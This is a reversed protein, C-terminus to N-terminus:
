HVGKGGTIELIENSFDLNDVNFVNKVGLSKLYSRQQKSKATAYIEAGVMKAYHVAALGLGNSANHILVKEGKQLNAKDRLCYIASLYSTILHSENNKLGTPCKEALNENVTTYSKFAGKSLA